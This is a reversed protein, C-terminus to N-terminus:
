ARSSAAIASSRLLRWAAACTLEEESTLPDASLGLHASIFNDGWCTRFLESYGFRPNIDYIYFSGDVEAFQFNIASEVQVSTALLQCFKLVKRDRVRRAIATHGDRQSVREVCAWSSATLVTCSYHHRSEGFWVEFLFKGSESLREFERENTVLVQGSSSHGDLPKALLPLTTDAWRDIVKTFHGSLASFRLRLARKDFMAMDTLWSESLVPNDHRMGNAMVIGRQTCPMVLIHRAALLDRFTQYYHTLPVAHVTSAPLTSESSACQSLQLIQVRIGPLAVAACLCAMQGRALHGGEILVDTANSRRIM